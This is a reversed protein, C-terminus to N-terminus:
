PRAPGGAPAASGRDGEVARLLRQFDPHAQFPKLDEDRLAQVGGPGRLWGARRASDLLGLAARSYGEVKEAKATATLSRDRSAARACLGYVCAVQVALPERDLGAKSLALAEAAAPSHKGQLALVEARRLRVEAPRVGAGLKLAEDLDALANAYFKTSLLLTGRGAEIYTVARGSLVNGLFARAQYQGPNRKLAKGLAKEAESYHSLRRGILRDTIGYFHGLNCHTGGLDTLFNADEPFEEQLKKRIALARQLEEGARPWKKWALYLLGLSNANNGRSRRVDVFDPNRRELETLIRAGHLFSKEAKVFGAVGQQHYLTGVGALANALHIQHRGDDGTLDHPKRLWLDIARQYAAEAETRGGRNMALQRGLESLSLALGFEFRRVNGRREVLGERVKVAERLQMVAQGHEGRQRHLLALNHRTGAEEDRHDPNERPLGQQAALAQRYAREAQDLRGAQQYLAGLNRYAGARSRRFELSARDEEALQEYRAIAQKFAEIADTRRGLSWSCIGVQFWADAVEAGHAPDAARRRVV